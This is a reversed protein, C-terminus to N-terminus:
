ARPLVRPDRGGRRGLERRQLSIFTKQGNIIYDNGDKIATTRLAALDSGAGPETMAIATIIEGTVCGPLWKEKQEESGFSNLYPVVVNSHLGAGIGAFGRRSGEEIMVASYEFGAGVGGYKEDLWSCLFGQEGLKRFFLKPVIGDKEWQEYFPAVEKEIFKIYAERFIQHEETYIGREM